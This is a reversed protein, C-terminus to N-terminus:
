IVHVEPVHTIFKGGRDVFEKEHSIIYDKFNWAGIFAYDYDTIDVNNRNLIPIHVGPMYLNCKDKTTDTVIEILMPDIYCFNFLVTSKSTAGISVIRQNSEKIESLLQILRERSNQVRVAFKKYVDIENLGAKEENMVNILLSEDVAFNDHSVYVRNSGGHVSLNEIKVISLGINELMNDLAIISFYHSHEDYFQDYSCNKIIELLSPDEFVFMGDRSLINKVSRFADELDYIHSICNASYILDFEGHKKKIDESLEYTWLDSYTEYGMSRTIDAFNNCPEVSVIEHAEFNQIFIGDNSGIELVKSFDFKKLSESANKFHEIMPISMSSYYKYSKNFIFEPSIMNKISVLKSECNFVFQAEYFYENDFESSSLFSNALPQNGLDLFTYNRNM